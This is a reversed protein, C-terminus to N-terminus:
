LKKGMYLQFVYDVTHCGGYKEIADKIGAYLAARNDDPLARQDSMTDLWQIYEDASFTQSMDYFKMSIDSFGYAKMDEFGFGHLIESPKEFDEKTKKIPRDNTTYFNYYYKEYVAQIDEYLKEGRAAIANYRFLAFTGGSRLLRFVKPCGIKADVWHFATAAYILDYSEEKLSADEFAATIVNFGEYGKFRELLFSAM